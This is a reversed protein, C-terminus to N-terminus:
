ENTEEQTSTEDQHDFMQEKMKEFYGGYQETLENIHTIIGSYVDKLADIYGENYEEKMQEETLEDQMKGYMTGVSYAIATLVHIDRSAITAVVQQEAEDLTDFNEEEMVEEVIEEAQENESM